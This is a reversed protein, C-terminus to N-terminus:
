QDKGSAALESCCGPLLPCHYSVGLDVRGIIPEMSIHDALSRPPDHHCRTAPHSFSPPATRGGERGLRSMVEVPKADFKVTREQGDVLQTVDHRGQVEYTLGPNM